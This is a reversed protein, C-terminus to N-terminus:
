VRASTQLLDRIAEGIRKANGVDSEHLWRSKVLFGLIADDVAVPAIFERRRQRARYARQRTNKKLRSASQDLGCTATLM